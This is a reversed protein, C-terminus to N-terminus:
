STLRAIAARLAQFVDPHHVDHGAGPVIVRQAAPWVAALRASTAPPCLLDQLPQIIEGPLDGLLHAARILQDPALFCDHAFYHAEMFPTAPM